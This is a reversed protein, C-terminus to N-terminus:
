LALIARIKGPQSLVLEASTRGLTYRMGHHSISEFKGRVMAALLESLSYEEGGARAYRGLLLRLDNLVDTSGSRFAVTQGVVALDTVPSDVRCSEWDLFGRLFGPQECTMRLNPYCPDGHVLQRRGAPAGSFDSVYKEARRLLPLDEPPFPIAGREILQLAHRMYGDADRTVPALHVPLRRLAAHAPALGAAVAGLDARSATDPIRGPVHASLRWIREGDDALLHGDCTSVPTPVSFPADALEGLLRVEREAQEREDQYQASLWADGVRWTQKNVGLNHAVPDDARGWFRALALRAGDQGPIPEDPIRITM